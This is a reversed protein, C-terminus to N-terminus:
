IIFMFHQLINIIGVLFVNEEWLILLLSGRKQGLELTYKNHCKACVSKKHGYFKEPNTESCMGCKHKSKSNKIPTYNSKLGYKKCWYRVTTSSKSEKKSIDNMSMGNNLMELLLDKNM